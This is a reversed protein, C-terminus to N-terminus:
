CPQTRVPNDDQSKSLRMMMIDDDQSKSLRTMMIDDDQSKSLRMMMIHFKHEGFSSKHFWFCFFYPANELYKELAHTSSKPSSGNFLWDFIWMKDKQQPDYCLLSVMYVRGVGKLVAQYSSKLM